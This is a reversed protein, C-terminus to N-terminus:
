AIALTRQRDATSREHSRAQALRARHQSHPAARALQCGRAERTRAPEDREGTAQRAQRPETRDERRDQRAQNGREGRAADITRTARVDAAACDPARFARRRRRPSGRGLDQQDLCLARLLEAEPAGHLAGCTAAWRGAGMSTAHLTFSHIRAPGAERARVWAHAARPVTRRSVGDRECVGKGGSRTRAPQTSTHARRSPVAGVTHLM